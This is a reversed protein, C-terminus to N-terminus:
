LLSSDTPYHIHTEVATTDMRLSEGSILEQEVAFGALLQNVQMWTEPTICNKLRDLHTFDMMPRHGLRCFRPLYKSDDIRVVTDRLSLREVIQVILIRLVNESTYRFRYANEQRRSAPELAAQLDRGSPARRPAEGPIRDPRRLDSM